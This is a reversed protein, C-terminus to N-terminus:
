FYVLLFFSPSLFCFVLAPQLFDLMRLLVWTTDHADIVHQTTLLVPEPVMLGPM